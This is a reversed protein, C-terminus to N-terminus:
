PQIMNRLERVTMENVTKQEGTSPIVHEKEIFEQTNPVSLLEFLVQKGLHHSSEDNSFKECVKIYRSADTRDIGVTKLWKIWEGHVLNNEKVHKLRKGIEFVSQGAIQKYIPKVSKSM